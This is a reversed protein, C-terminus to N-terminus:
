LPQLELNLQLKRNETESSLEYFIAENNHKFEGDDFRDDHKGIFLNERIHM